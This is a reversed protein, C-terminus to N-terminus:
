VRGDLYEAIKNRIGDKDKKDHVLITIGNPLQKQASLQYRLLPIQYPLKNEVKFIENKFADNKQQKLTTNGEVHTIGDLEIALLPKYTYFNFGDPTTSKILQCILFDVNKGGLIHMSMEKTDDDIGDIPQIFSYLSTQPFVFLQKKNELFAYPNSCNKSSEISGYLDQLARCIFYYTWKENSNMFNPKFVFYHNPNTRIDLEKQQKETDKQEKEKRISQTKENRKELEKQLRDRADTMKRLRIRLAIVDENQMKQQLIQNQTSLSQIQHRLAGNENLDKERQQRMRENEHRVKKYQYALIVLVVILLFVFFGM